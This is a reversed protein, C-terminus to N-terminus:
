EKVGEVELWPVEKLGKKDSELEHGWDGNEGLLEGHDATIIIKKGPNQEVFRKIEELALELDKRYYEWTKEPGIKKVLKGFHDQEVNFLDKIKWKVSDPFRKFVPNWLGRTSDIIKRKSSKEEMGTIRERADWLEGEEPCTIYPRHPQIYHIITKRGSEHNIARDTLDRPHVTDLEEDWDQDWSDIIKRFKETPKWDEECGKFSENLPIGHSNIFPNASIYDYNYRSSFTKHLWEATGTGRSIKKELSGKFFNSYVKEFEDYRCADLVILYDWETGHIEQKETM